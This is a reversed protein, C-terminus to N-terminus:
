IGRATGDCVLMHDFFPVGSDVATKGNGNPNFRIAIKTEKTERKVEVVRM